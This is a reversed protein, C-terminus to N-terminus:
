AWSKWPAHGSNWRAELQQKDRVNDMCQWFGDHRYAQLQDQAVLAELPEREWVTSDGAILDLVRPSLLFFGGNIYNGDGLPKELFGTVNSGSLSLAGFRGPPRVATITALRGHAAHFRAQDQMDLDCVGDGYTMFFPEDNDLYPRLRRLRGGTMTDDGTDVLTVRWPEVTIRHYDVTGSALDFTVDGRHLRYNAFYEKILYGKYGVAIIFETVGAQAYLKMIHWLLPEHGINVMPKPRVSTEEALRTGTGGALIVAKM